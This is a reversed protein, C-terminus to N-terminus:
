KEGGGNIQKVVSISSNVANKVAKSTVTAGSLAQIENEKPNAKVVGKIEEGIGKFQNRFSEKVLNAGLGATESHEVVSVGTICAENDVGVVLGIVGGYGGTQELKVCYGVKEGGKKAVVVSKICDSKELVSNLDIEESFDQADIVEKYADNIKLVTNEEIKDKTLFNVGALAVGVIATIVFLTIGYKVTEKVNM